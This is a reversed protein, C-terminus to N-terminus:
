KYLRTLRDPSPSLLSLLEYPITHAHAALAPLLKGRDDYLTVTDGAEAPLDGVLVTAYDMSIRGVLPVAHGYLSVKGGELARLLGDRYGFPLVGVATDCPAVWGGGYGVSEGERVPYVAVLPCTLRLAPRLTPASVSPSPAYGYLGLGIRAGDQGATGFRLAGATNCLHSHFRLGRGRLRSVIDSFRAIQEPTKTSNPDDAESLHSFVHCVELGELSSVALTQEVADEACGTSLGLRHMGVDLKVAVRLSAKGIAAALARAYSLTPVTQLIGAEALDGALDPSTIGLCLVEAEPMERRLCLAEEATAVAFHRAGAEELANAVGVLGHGYANAKVVSWLVANPTTRRLHSLLTRYNHRLARVDIRACARVTKM